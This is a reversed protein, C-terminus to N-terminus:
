FLSYNNFLKEFNSKLEQNSIVIIEFPQLGSTTPALSIAEIINDLKEKPIKQGNMAKTAYRWNLKEILEM